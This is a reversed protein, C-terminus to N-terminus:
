AVRRPASLAMVYDNDEIPFQASFPHLGPQLRKTLSAALLPNIDLLRNWLDPIDRDKQWYRNGISPLYGGKQPM